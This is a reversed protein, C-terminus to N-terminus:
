AVGGEVKRKNNKEYEDILDTRKDDAYSKQEISKDPDIHEDAVHVGKDLDTEFSDGCYACEFDNNEQETM